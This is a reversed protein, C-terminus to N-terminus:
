TPRAVPKAGGLPPHTGAASSGSPSFNDGPGCLNRMATCPLGHQRRVAQVAAIGAISMAYADNTPRCRKRSRGHPSNRLHVVLGPVAAAAVQAAVAADLLNVQIQTRCSIPRTPFTPWPHRRGPGGRRHRGAANWFSDFAAARDTLDDARPRVLLNLVGAFAYCRSRVLGRHRPSTSRPRPTGASRPTRGGAIMPKDIWPKGECELAAMDADVMIRLWDRRM